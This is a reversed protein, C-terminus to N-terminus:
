PRLLLARLRRPLLPLPPGVCTALSLHSGSDNAIRPKPPLAGWARRLGNGGEGGWRRAAGGGGAHRSRREEGKNNRPRARGCSLAFASRTADSQSSLAPLAPRVALIEGGSGGAATAARKGGGEGSAFCAAAHGAAERPRQTRADTAQM